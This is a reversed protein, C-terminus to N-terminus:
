SYRRRKREPQEKSSSRPSGHLCRYLQKGELDQLMNNVDQQSCLQREVYFPIAGEFFVISRDRNWQGQRLLHPLLTFVTLRHFDRNKLMVKVKDGVEVLNVRLKETRMAAEAMGRITDHLTDLQTTARKELKERTIMSLNAPQLWPNNSTIIRGQQLWPLFWPYLSDSLCTLQNNHLYLTTLNALEGIATPLATLQNNHLYLTTLNTLKGIATTLATLQNYDLDLTTLNTLGGITEPIETLQNDALDLSTLNTLKGIATPLATLQNKALDLTTLNTLEGIAKPLTQLRNNALNLRTLNTLQGIATPLATLQNNRLYFATLNTLGGIAEPIETLQNNDLDLATLNTLEGIATLLTQLRNNALNLRTLNTLDGIAPPIETLQNNYLDLSTLNTLEGIATPLATLQNYQLHLRTLNTLEGIATPLATLQNNFLTLATLNTLQGITEPLAQLQNYYLELSTLNKLQGIASDLATLHNAISGRIALSNVQRPHYRALYRIVAAMVEDAVGRPQLLGLDFVLDQQKSNALQQLAEWWASAGREELFKQASAGAEDLEALPVTYQGVGPQEEGEGFSLVPSNLRGCGGLFLAAVLSLWTYSTRMSNAGIHM